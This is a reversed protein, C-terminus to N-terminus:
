TGLASEHHAVPRQRLVGDRRQEGDARTHTAAHGAAAGASVRCLSFMSKSKVKEEKPMAVCLAKM